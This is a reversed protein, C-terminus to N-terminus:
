NVGNSHKFTLPRLISCLQGGKKTFNSSGEGPPSTIAVVMGSRNRVARMSFKGTSGRTKGRGSATFREETDLNQLM